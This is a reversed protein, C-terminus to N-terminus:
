AIMKILENELRDMNEENKDVVFPKIKNCEEASNFLMKFVVKTKNSSVVDFTAVVQFLPKSHRKWAILNPKDIKIFECENAYNGKDPGHMIFCWKGGERLDFENFTNTFGTPGWWNKLHNPDTWAKYVIEIPANVIRSTVIECDPTTSIIESTM